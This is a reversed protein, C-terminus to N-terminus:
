VRWKSTLLKYGNTDGKMQALSVGMQTCFDISEKLNDGRAEKFYISTIGSALTHKLCNMCPEHTIYITSGRKDVPCHLLCNLEAHIEYKQSWERHVSNDNCPSNVDGCNHYGSPTGNYGTSIVRGDLVLVAGVSLRVCNSERAVTHAMEM